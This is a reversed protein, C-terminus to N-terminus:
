PALDFGLPSANLPYTLLKFRLSEVHGARGGSDIVILDNIIIFRERLYCCINNSLSTVVSQRLIQLAPLKSM